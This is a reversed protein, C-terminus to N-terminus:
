LLADAVLAPTPQRLARAAEHLEAPSAAPRVRVAEERALPLRITMVYTTVNRTNRTTPTNQQAEQDADVASVRSASSIVDLWIQRSLGVCCCVSQVAAANSPRRGQKTPAATRRTRTSTNLRFLLEGATDRTRWKTQKHNVRRHGRKTTDVFPSHRAPPRGGTCPSWFRSCCRRCWSRGAVCCPIGLFLRPPLVFTYM